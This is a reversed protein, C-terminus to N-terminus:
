GLWFQIEPKVLPVSHQRNDSPVQYVAGTPRHHFVGGHEDVALADDLRAWPGRDGDGLARLDVIGAPM